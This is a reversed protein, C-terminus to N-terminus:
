WDIANGDQICVIGEHKGHLRIKRAALNGKPQRGLRHQATIGNLGDPWMSQPQIHMPLALRHMDLRLQVTSM